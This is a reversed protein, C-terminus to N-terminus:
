GECKDKLAVVSIRFTLLIRIKSAKIKRVRFCYEVDREETLVWKREIMESM